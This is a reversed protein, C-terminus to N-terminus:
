GRRAKLRLRIKARVACNLSRSGATIQSCCDTIRQQWTRARLFALGLRCMSHGNRSRVCCRVPLARRPVNPLVRDSDPNSSVRPRYSPPRFDFRWFVGDVGSRSGISVRSIEHQFASWGLAAGIECVTSSKSDHAQHHHWYSRRDRDGAVDVSFHADM